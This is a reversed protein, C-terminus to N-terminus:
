SYPDVFFNILGRNYTSYQDFRSIPDFTPYSVHYNSEVQFFKIM